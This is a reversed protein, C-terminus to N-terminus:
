FPRTPSADSGAESTNENKFKNARKLFSIAGFYCFPIPVVAGIFTLLLDKDQSPIFAYCALLIGVAITTLLRQNKSIKATFWGSIFCALSSGLCMGILMGIIPSENKSSIAEYLGGNSQLYLVFLFGVIAGVAFLLVTGILFGLVFGKIDIRM